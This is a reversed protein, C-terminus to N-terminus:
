MYKTIYKYSKTKLIHHYGMSKKKKKKKKNATLDTLVDFDHLTMVTGTCQLWDTSFFLDWNDSQTEELAPLVCGSKNMKTKNLQKEFRDKLSWM